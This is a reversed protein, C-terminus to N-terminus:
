KSERAAPETKFPRGRKKKLPDGVKQALDTLRAAEDERVANGKRTLEELEREDDEAQAEEAEATKAEADKQVMATSKGTAKAEEEANGVLVDGEKGSVWKPYEQYSM